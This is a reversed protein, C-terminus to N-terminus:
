QRNDIYVEDDITLYIIESKEALKDVEMIIYFENRLKAGFSNEADFWGYISYGTDGYQKYEWFMWDGFDATSPAKLFLKIRSTAQSSLFICVDTESNWDVSNDLSLISWVICGSCLLIPLLILVAVISIKINRNFEAIKNRAEIVDGDQDVSVGTNESKAVARALKKKLTRKKDVYLYISFGCLAILAASVMIIAVTKM